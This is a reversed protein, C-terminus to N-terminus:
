NKKGSTNSKKESVRGEPEGSKRGQGGKGERPREGAGGGGRGGRSAVGRGGGHCKLSVGAELGGGAGQGCKDQASWGSVLGGTWGGICM